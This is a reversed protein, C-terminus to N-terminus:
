LTPTPAPSAGSAPAPLVISNYFDRFTQLDAPTAYNFDIRIARKADITARYEALHALAVPAGPSPAAVSGTRDYLRLLGTVGFVEIPNASVVSYGGRGPAGLGDLTPGLAVVITAQQGSQPNFVVDSTGEAFTWSDPYLASFGRQDSQYLNFHRPSSYATNDTMWGTTTEGKVQFWGGNSDSHALVTVVTGQGLNGVVKADKSPGDRINLGLPAIVTRQGSAPQPTATPTGGPPASGGPASKTPPNTALGPTSSGSGCATVAALLLVAPLLRLTSHRLCGM